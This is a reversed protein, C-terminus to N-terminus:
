DVMEGWQEAWGRQPAEMAGLKEEVEVLAMVPTKDVLGEEGQRRVVLLLNAGPCKPGFLHLQVAGPYDM